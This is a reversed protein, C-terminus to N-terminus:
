EHGAYAESIFAFIGTKSLGDHKTNDLEYHVIIYIHHSDDNPVFRNEASSEYHEGKKKASSEFHVMRVREITGDCVGRCTLVWEGICVSQRTRITQEIVLRETMHQQKAVCRVSSFKKKSQARPM